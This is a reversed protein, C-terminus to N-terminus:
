SILVIRLRRFGATAATTAAAASVRAAQPLLPPVALVDFLPCTVRVQHVLAVVPCSLVTQCCAAAAKWLACGLTVMWITGMWFSANVVLTGAASAEFLGGDM